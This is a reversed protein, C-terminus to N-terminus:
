EAGSSGTAGDQPAGAGGAGGAAGTAASATLKATGGVLLIPLLLAALKRNTRELDALARTCVACGPLHAEIKSVVRPSVSDRVYQSLRDQVWQCQRDRPPSGLRRNLYALKLGERARYALSSVAAPSTRLLTAVEPIRRGEVEVHWLVQQWAEPLANFAAIADVDGFTDDLSTEPAEVPAHNDELIWPQDSVPNERSALRVADRYRNRITAFLYARFNTAPGRGGRLQSIVRAFSDSVLDDAASSGALATALRRAAPVHTTYLDEIATADGSRARLLLEAEDGTGAPTSMGDERALPGTPPTRGRPAAASHAPPSGHHRLSLSRVQPAHCPSRFM